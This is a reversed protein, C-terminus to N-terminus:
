ALILHEWGTSSWNLVGWLWLMMKMKKSKLKGLQNKRILWAIQNKNPIRLTFLLDKKASVTRAHCKKIEMKLQWKWCCGIQSQLKTLKSELEEPFLIHVLQQGIRSMLIKSGFTEMFNMPLNNTAMLGSKLTTILILLPNRITLLNKSWLWIKSQCM